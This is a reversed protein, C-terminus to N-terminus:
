DIWQQKLGKKALVILLAAIIVVLLPMIVAQAGYVDLTNTLFFSNIDQVIIGILSIILIPLSFAKKLVLAISGLLGAFVAAAFAVTAWMPTNKYLEQEAVPLTALVEPTMMIHGIFALVGLMNWIVAIITVTKYWKPITINQNM